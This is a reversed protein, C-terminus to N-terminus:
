FWLMPANVPTIDTFLNWESPFQIKPMCDLIIGGDDSIRGETVGTSLSRLKRIDDISIFLIPCYKHKKSEKPSIFLGVPENVVHMNPRDINFREHFLKEPILKMVFETREGVSYGFPSPNAPSYGNAKVLHDNRERIHSDLLEIRDLLEKEYDTLYHKM